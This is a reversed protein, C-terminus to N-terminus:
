TRALKFHHGDAFEGRWKGGRISRNKDSRWVSANSTLDHGRYVLPYNFAFCSSILVDTFYVLLFLHKKFEYFLFKM